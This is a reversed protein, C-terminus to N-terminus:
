ADVSGDDSSMTSSGLDVAILEDILSSMKQAFADEGNVMTYYEKFKELTDLKKRIAESRAELKKMRVEDEWEAMKNRAHQTKIRKMEADQERSEALLGAEIQRRDELAEEQATARIQARTRGSNNNAPTATVDPNSRLVLAPLLMNCKAHHACFTAPRIIIDEDDMDETEEPYAEKFKKLILACISDFISTGSPARHPVPLHPIIENRIRKLRLQAKDFLQKGDYDTQANALRVLMQARRDPSDFCDEPLHRVIARYKELMNADRQSAPMQGMESVQERALILILAEFGVMTQPSIPKM